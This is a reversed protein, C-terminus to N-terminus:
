YDTKLEFLRNILKTNDTAVYNLLGDRYLLIKNEFEMISLKLGYYEFNFYENDSKLPIIGLKLLEQKTTEIM